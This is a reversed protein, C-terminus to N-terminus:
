WPYIKDIRWQSRKILAACATGSGLGNEQKMAKENCSDEVDKDFLQEYPLVDHPIGCKDYGGLHLGNAIYYKKYEEPACTKPQLNNNYVYLVFIDRGLKNEGSNGNIDLLITIFGDKSKNFGIVAGSELLISFESPNSISKKSLDMYVPSGWCGSQSAGECTKEVIIYPLVYTKAFEEATINKDYNTILEGTEVFYRHTAQELISYIAHLKTEITKKKCSNYLPAAILAFLILFIVGIVLLQQSQTFGDYKKLM